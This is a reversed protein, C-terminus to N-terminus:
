LTHAQSVMFVTLAVLGQTERRPLSQLTDAHRVAHLLPYPICPNSPTPGSLEYPNYLGGLRTNRVPTTVPPHCRAWCRTLPSTYYLPQIPHSDQCSMLLKCSGGDRTSRVLTPRSLPLTGLLLTYYLPPPNCAVLTKLRSDHCGLMINKVSSTM